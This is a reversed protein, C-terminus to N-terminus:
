TQGFCPFSVDKGFISQVGYVDGRHTQLGLKCIDSDPQSPILVSARGFLILEGKENSFM